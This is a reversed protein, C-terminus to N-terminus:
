GLYQDFGGVSRWEADRYLGNFARTFSDLVHAQPQVLGLRYQLAQLLLQNTLLRCAVEIWRRRYRARM